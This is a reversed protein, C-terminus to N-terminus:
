YNSTIEIELIHLDEVGTIDTGCEGLWGNTQNVGTYIKVFDVGTLNAKAGSSDVAWSIDIASGEDTNIVNDAYGYKYSYLVYNVGTTSTNIGNQPLRNGSFILAADSIWQPYYAQTTSINKQVYGSNGKNDSWPIYTSYGSMEPESAPKTYTITFDSYFNVDNGNSVADAYFSEQTVDEHSSGAIEYWEDDPEGNGNTDYAVMIVGPESSTATANGLVRFDCKDAVNEITHDFGVTVYGGYGGLSIMGGAGDGILDLVKQNMDEQTDGDEYVPLKNVHQGPAPRYDFVKTIYATADPDPDPDPDPDVYGVDRLKTDTFAIAAPIDGTTASWKLTGASSYCYVKGPTVYDKADTIFIEGTEPNVAIGYPITITSDTGDTIFNSSTVSQSVVDVVAYSVSNMSSSNSWESSIVYITDCNRAMNSNPLDLSKVITDDETDLIYTKSSTSGYDGRSSIWLYGYQDLELHHLNIAVDIYRTHTFTNLDIVSLRSDYDPVNYGGSNAVYLKDGVVLLQEPQYGVSCEGVVTLTSLDVKAVYGLRKGDGLSTGAYSSVYAYDGDFVIYRCNPISFSGVHEATSLTMVEVLNSCNIVAYIRGDYIQIDNGVDGLSYVVNPNRESYINKSYVGSEYDFYDITAKNSGMNGENLLFLGKVERAYPNPDTVQGETSTITFEDKRCSVAVFLILLLNLLMRMITTYKIEVQLKDGANPLM